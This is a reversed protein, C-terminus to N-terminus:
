HQMLRQGKIFLLSMLNYLVTTLFYRIIIWIHKHFFFQVVRLINLPCDWLFTPDVLTTYLISYSLDFDYGLYSSNRTCIDDISTVALKDNTDLYLAGSVCITIHLCCFTDPSWRGQIYLSCNIDTKKLSCCEPYM